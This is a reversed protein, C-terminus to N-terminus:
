NGRMSEQEALVSFEKKTITGKDRLDKLMRLAQKQGVTNWRRLDEILQLSQKRDFIGRRWMHTMLQMVKMNEIDYSQATQLCNIADSNKELALYATALNVYSEPGPSLNIAEQFSEASEGYRGLLLFATGKLNHIEPISPEKKGAEDLIRLAEKIIATKQRPNL